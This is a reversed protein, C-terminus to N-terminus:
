WIKFHVAFKAPISMVADVADVAAVSYMDVCPGRPTLMHGYVIM